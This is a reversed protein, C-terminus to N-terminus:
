QKRDGVSHASDAPADTYAPPAQSSSGGTAGYNGPAQQAHMHQQLKQQHGYVGHMNGQQQPPHQQQYAQGPFVQHAPRVHAQRELDGHQHTCGNLGEPYKLVIYFAHVLGPLFGLLSLLLNILFDASCIGRKIAVPLPPFILVMLLLIFDGCSM